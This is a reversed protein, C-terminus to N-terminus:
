NANVMFEMELLQFCLGRHVYELTSAARIDRTPMLDGDSLKPIEGTSGMRDLQHKGPCGSIPALM